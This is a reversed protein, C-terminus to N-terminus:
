PSVKPYLFPHPHSIRGCLDCLVCLPLFFSTNKKKNEGKQRQTRQSRQPLIEWGRGKDQEKKRM